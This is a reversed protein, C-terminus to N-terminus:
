RRFVETSRNPVYFVDGLDNRFAKGNVGYVGTSYMVEEPKMGRRWNEAGDLFESQMSEPIENLNYGNNDWGYNKIDKQSVHRPNTYGAEYKYRPGVFNVVEDRFRAGDGTANAMDNALKEARYASHIADNTKEAEKYASNLEDYKSIVAPDDLMSLRPIGSIYDKKTAERRAERKASNYGANKLRELLSLKSM